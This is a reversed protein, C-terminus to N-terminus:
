GQSPPVPSPFRPSSMREVCPFRLSIAFRKFALSVALSHFRLDGSGLLSLFPTLSGSLGPRRVPIPPSSPLFSIVTPTHLSLDHVGHQGLPRVLFGRRSPMESLTERYSARRPSCGTVELTAPGLCALELRVNLRRAVVQGPFSIQSCRHSQM